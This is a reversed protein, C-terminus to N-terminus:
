CGSSHVLYSAPHSASVRNIVASLWYGLMESCLWSLCLVVFFVALACALTLFILCLGSTKVVDTVSASSIGYLSRRIVTACSFHLDHWKSSAQFCFLCIHWHMTPRTCFSQTVVHKLHSKFSFDYRVKGFDRVDFLDFAEFLESKKMGFIESCAHM